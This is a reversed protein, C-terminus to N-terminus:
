IDLDTIDIVNKGVEEQKLKIQQEQFTKRDIEKRIKNRLELMNYIDRDFKGLAKEEERIQELIGPDNDEMYKAKLENLVMRHFQAEKEAEALRAQTAVLDSEYDLVDMDLEKIKNKLVSRTYSELDFAITRAVTNEVLGMLQMKEVEKLPAVGIREMLYQINKSDRGHTLPGRPRKMATVETGDALKRVKKKGAM